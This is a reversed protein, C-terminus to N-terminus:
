LCHGCSPPDGLIITATLYAAFLLPPGKFAAALGILVAGVVRDGRVLLLCGAVALFDIMLDIQQHALANLIYSASCIIGIPAIFLERTKAPGIAPWTSGGALLWASRVMGAICAVNMAFWALRSAVDPLSVFPVVMLAM